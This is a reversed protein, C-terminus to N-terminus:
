GFVALWIGCGIVTAVGILLLAAITGAIWRALLPLRPWARWIEYPIFVGMVLGYIATGILMVTLIVVATWTITPRGTLTGFVIVAILLNPILSGVIALNSDRTSHMQPNREENLM